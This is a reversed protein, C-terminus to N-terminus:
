FLRLDDDTDFPAPAPPEDTPAGHETAYPERSVPTLHRIHAFLNSSGYRQRGHERMGEASIWGHVIFVPYGDLAAECEVLAFRLGARLDHPKLRLQRSRMAASTSRQTRVVWYPPVRGDLRRPEPVGVARAFVIVGLAGMTYNHRRDADDAPRDGNDGPSIRRAEGGLAEARRQESPRPKVVLVRRGYLTAEYNM